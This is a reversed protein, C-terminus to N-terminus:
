RIVRSEGQVWTRPGFSPQGFPAADVTVTGDLRYAVRNQTLIRTAADVLGPVDAFSINIDIPIITDAAASLPMGLPFEVTAAQTNELFLNGALAALTLGFSNPNEVRTWIRLTAGGLPRGTTPPALRLEADRGEAASLRPPQVITELGLAACGSLALAVALATMTLGTRLRTARMALEQRQAHGACSRQVWQMSHLPWAAGAAAPGAHDARRDRQPALAQTRTARRDERTGPADEPSSV